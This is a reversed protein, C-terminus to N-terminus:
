GFYKIGKSVIIFLITKKIEYRPPENGTRLLVMSKQRNIKHGEAKNLKNM